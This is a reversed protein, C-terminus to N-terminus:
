QGKQKSSSGYLFTTTTTFTAAVRNEAGGLPAGSWQATKGFHYTLLLPVQCVFLPFLCYNAGRKQELLGNSYLCGAHIHITEIESTHSSSCRSYNEGRPPASSLPPYILETTPGLAPFPRPGLSNFSESLLGGKSFTLVQPVKGRFTLVMLVQWNTSPHRTQFTLMQLYSFAKKM